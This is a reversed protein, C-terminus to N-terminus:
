ANDYEQQHKYISVVEAFRDAFPQADEIRLKGDNPFVIIDDTAVM